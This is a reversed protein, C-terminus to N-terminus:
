APSEPPASGSRRRFRRAVEPTRVQGLGIALVEQFVQLGVSTVPLPARSIDLNADSEGSSSGSESRQDREPNTGRPRDLHGTSGWALDKPVAANGRRSCSAIPRAVPLVLGQVALGPM